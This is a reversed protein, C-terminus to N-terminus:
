APAPRTYRWQGEANTGNARVFGCRVLTRQSAINDAATHAIVQAGAAEAAAAVLALAESMLGKGRASEVLGFGVEVRGQDDPPGFFGITGVVRGDDRRVVHRVAWGRAGDGERGVMRVAEIDDERPYGDAFLDLRGGVVMVRAEQETVLPLRVAVGELPEVNM